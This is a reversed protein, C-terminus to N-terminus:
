SRDLIEDVLRDRNHRTVVWLHVDSRQKIEKILGEGYLAITALLQRNDELLKRIMTHFRKSFLEMKGIEDIVILAAPANLLDLQDLFTGFGARDVGYRGARHRGKINVHALIRREGNIGRLEFGSRGGKSRIEATYFGAMPLPGMRQVIDRVLTTKGVGPLGTLLTKPYRLRMPM